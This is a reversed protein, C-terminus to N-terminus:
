AFFWGFVTIPFSFGSVVFLSSVPLAYRDDFYEYIFKQEDEIKLCGTLKLAAVNRKFDYLRKYVPSYEKGTSAGSSGEDTEHHKFPKRPETETEFSKQSLNLAMIAGPLLRKRTADTILVFLMIIAECQTFFDRM